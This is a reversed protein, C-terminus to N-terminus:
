PRRLKLTPPVRPIWYDRSDRDIMVATAYQIV